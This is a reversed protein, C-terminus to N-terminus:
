SRHCPHNGSCGGDCDTCGCGCGDGTMRAIMKDIEETTADRNELVRGEFYLTEGALPHNLDVKVKEEGVEVVRGYFRNGDENQLPIIADPYVHSNDFQGNIVFMDRELELVREKVYDGYAQEKPISFEFTGDAPLAAVQEEFADLAIGFGSIFQFPQTTTAEEVLEKGQEGDLYLKYVVSIFKNPKNEM